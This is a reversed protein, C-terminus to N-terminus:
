LSMGSEKLLDLVFEDITKIADQYVSYSDFDSLYSIADLYENVREQALM